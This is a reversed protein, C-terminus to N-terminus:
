LKNKLVGAQRGSNLSYARRMNLFESLVMVM